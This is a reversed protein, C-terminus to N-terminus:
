GITVSEFRSYSVVMPGNTATGSLYAGLGVTGAVQMAATTDTRSVTWATPETQGTLWVKARVTTPNTGSVELRVSLETGPTYALTTNIAQLTTSGRLAQLQVVGNAQVWVRASYAENGVQRGIVSVFHGGGTPTQAISFSTTTDTATSTAANLLATRTQGATDSIVAKGGSVSFGSAGGSLTWNGGAAAAGWAGTATREFEDLAFAGPAPPATVTVSATRSNTAGKDDTVTLGVTYTGAATYAHTTTSGTGTTGDGFSWAYSAITGDPDTSTSGDVTATLGSTSSTFAATPAQNAPPVVPAGTTVSFDDFSVAVPGNTATGSLYTSGGASGAAQLAATADTTQAQWATPEADSKKWVKAKLSTPSTGTVEFAVVLETGATYSTLGPIAVNQLVVGDRQVLLRPVGNGQIWVKATYSASGVQRGIVNVYTGGGNGVVATSFTVSTTASSSSVGDLRASRNGTAPTTIVGKGASVGFSTNGGSISWTGGTNALGWANSSTREFADAAITSTGPAAAVTVSRTTTATAGRNDTVTLTVTYTGAVAYTHTATAGTGTGNDGFTWDYSAVTGDPDTSASADVSVALETTSATFSATPNQNPVASATVIRTTTGTGGSNDTVTLTM